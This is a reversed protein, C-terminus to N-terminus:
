LNVRMLENYCDVAKNRLQILLQLSAQAKYAAITLQAPNDLQGTSLLYEMKSHEEDTQRVNDIASKFVDSFITGSTSKGEAPDVGSFPTWQPSIAQMPQFPTSM